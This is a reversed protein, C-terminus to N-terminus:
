LQMIVAIASAGAYGVAGGMYGGVCDVGFVKWWNVANTSKFNGTAIYQIGDLGGQDEPSWFIATHKAVALHEYYLDLESGSFLSNAQVERDEISSLIQNLNNANKFLDFTKKVEVKYDESVNFNDIWVYLDLDNFNNPFAPISSLSTNPYKQNLTQEVFAKTKSSIPIETTNELVYKLAENHLIGVNEKPNIFNSKLNDDTNIQDM